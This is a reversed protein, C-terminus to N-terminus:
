VACCICAACCACPRAPPDSDPCSCSGPRNFTLPMGRTGESSRRRCSTCTLWPMLGPLPALAGTDDAAPARVLAESREAAKGVHQTYHDQQLRQCRNLGPLKSLFKLNTRQIPTVGM